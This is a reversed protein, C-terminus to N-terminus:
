KVQFHGKVLIKQEEPTIIPPTKKQRRILGLWNNSGLQNM